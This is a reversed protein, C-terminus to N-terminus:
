LSTSSAPEPLAPSTAPLMGLQPCHEERRQPQGAGTDEEKFGKTQKGEEKRGLAGKRHWSPVRPQEGPPQGLVTGQHRHVSM